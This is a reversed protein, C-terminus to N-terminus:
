LDVVLPIVVPARAYHRRFYRRLSSRVTGAVEDPEALAGHALRSISSEIERKAGAVLDEQNEDLILGRTIIEPARALSKSESDLHIVAVVLGTHALARRDRLVPLGVEDLEKGEVLVQGAPIHGVLHPAAQSLDYLDGNNPAVVRQVGCRRALDGMALQMRYRGHVPMVCNPKTLQIMEAIDERNGHGSVHVVMDSNQDQVDAGLRCLRDVMRAVQRERGPIVRASLVVTDGPEIQLVGHDGLALRSLASRPEAQAGTVVIVAHKRPTSGMEESSPVFLHEPITLLGLDKAINVTTQLSRGEFCVHRDHRACLDAITQLRAVHSSFVALFIRGPASAFIQALGESVSEETDTHGPQLVNTSDSILLSVGRAGLEKLAERDTDWDQALGTGTMKFDGTWLIIGARTEVALALSQPISHAVALPIISIDDGISLPRGPELVHKEPTPCNPYENLRHDVLRLTFETGYVPAPAVELAFPLAGIHDEHGHTLFYGAVRDRNEELYALDPLVWDVGPMEDTPFMAGSDIVLIRGGAELAASNLGFQGCGGLFALRIPTNSKIPCM